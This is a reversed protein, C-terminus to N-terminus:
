VKLFRTILAFYDKREACQVPLLKVKNSNRLIVEQPVREQVCWSNDEQALGSRPGDVIGHKRVENRVPVGESIVVLGAELNSPNDNGYINLHVSWCLASLLSVTDLYPDNLATQGTLLVAIAAFWTDDEVFIDSKGDWGTLAGVVPHGLLNNPARLPPHECKNLQRVHSFAILLVVLCRTNAITDHWLQRAKAAAESGRQRCAAQLTQPPESDQFPWDTSYVHVFDDVANETFMENNFLFKAAKILSLEM